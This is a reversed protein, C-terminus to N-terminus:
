PLTGVKVKIFPELAALQSSTQTTVSNDACRVDCKGLNQLYLYMYRWPFITGQGSQFEAQSYTGNTPPFYKARTCESHTLEWGKASLQVTYISWHYSSWVTHDFKTPKTLSYSLFALLKNRWISVAGSYYSGCNCIIESSKPLKHQADIKKTIVIKCYHVTCLYCNSVQFHM